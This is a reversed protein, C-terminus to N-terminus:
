KKTPNKHGLHECVSNKLLAAKYNFNRTNIMCDRELIAGSKHTTIFFEFGHPFMKKYDSLRRLGPNWSFGNWIDVHKDKILYFGSIKESDEICSKMNNRIWVQHIDTYNELIDLSEKLFHKNGQFYWDEECHFIYKTKVLSYLLDISKGQGINEGCIVNIFPYKNRIDQAIDEKGSDEKLLWESIYEPYANTELFSDITQFLLDNRNCSTICITTSKKYM